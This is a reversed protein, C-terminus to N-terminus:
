LEFVYRQIAKAVGDEENSATVAAANQKVEEQANGMAIGLGAETIMSLDNVSDGMAVAQSMDIGLLRCVDRLGAAKSVDSPNVEVNTPHSNTCEYAGTEDLMAKVRDLAALDKSAYGFKLWVHDALVTDGWTDRNLKGETTYAWYWVGLQLAIGRLWDVQRWDLTHRKHLRQPSSWVEGGNVAVVPSDLGLQDTYPRILQMGRGTAMVVTVGREVARAIWKANEASIQKSDTLLTGDMDLAILKYDSV